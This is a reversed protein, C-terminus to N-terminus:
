HLLMVHKRTLAKNYSGVHFFNLPWKQNVAKEAVSRMIRTTDSSLKHIFSNFHSLLISTFIFSGNLSHMTPPRKTYHDISTYITRHTDCWLNLPTRDGRNGRSKFQIISTQLFEFSHESRALLVQLMEHVPRLLHTWVTSYILAMTLGCRRPSGKPFYRVFIYM